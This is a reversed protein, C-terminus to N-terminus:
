LHLGAHGAHGAAGVLAGIQIKPYRSEPAPAINPYVLGLNRIEGSVHRFLGYRWVYREVDQPNPNPIVYTFNAITHGNGDFVGSFPQDFWGPHGRHFGILNFSDGQYASLDIDAMLLFHKDWDQSYLGITNMQEATYILYPDEATGAGGGYRAWAAPSLSTVLVLLVVAREIRGCPFAKGDRM